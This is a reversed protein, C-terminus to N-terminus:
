EEQGSKSRKAAFRKSLEDVILKAGPVNNKAAQKASNYFTLAAVYAESGSLLITDDLKSNLQSSIHFLPFLSKTGQVDVKWNDVSLYPPVFETSTKSFEVSKEVFPLSGDGMKPLEKREEPKLTILYPSLLTHAENLKEEAKTLVDAPINLAIRNEM